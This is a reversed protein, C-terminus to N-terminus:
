YIVSEGAALGSIIEAKKGDTFGTVVQRVSGDAMEVAPSGNINRVAAVPVAVVGPAEATIFELSATMGERIQENGEKNLIVRVLYTVIGNSNSSSTLSIFSIEGKLNVGEVADFSVQAQDGVKLKSIDAEEVNVEVYLTDNNIITAVSDASSGDLIIDGEKYNLAAVVGDIPSTLTAQEMNYKARDVSIAASTLQARASALDNGSLPEILDQYDSQAQALAIEKTRISSSANLVSQESSKKVSELDRVAKEYNTEYQTLSSEANDVAQKASNLSSSLSLAGSQNSNVTAKLSDLKTQSLGTFTITADLLKKLYRQHEQMASIATAAQNAAAEVAAHSSYDNLSETAEDLAARANKAQTYSSKAQGYSASDLAGLVREFEDNVAENDVGIIADSDQLQKSLSLNISKLTNILGVYANHVIESDNLSSNLKMNNEATKVAAEANKINQESDYVSQSYSSKASALALQAQEISAKAKAIESESATELKSNYSALASQYSNYASRLEFELSETKVSAIKDGKKIKDGEKVYVSQVELSGSIPFSLEVGDEAVVKGTASVAIRLDETKATYKKVVVNATEKNESGTQFYYYLGGALLLAFGLALWKKRLLFGFLGRRSRKSEEIISQPM